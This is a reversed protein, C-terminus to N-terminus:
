TEDKEEPVTEEKSVAKEGTAMEYIFEHPVKCRVANMLMEARASERMLAYFTSFTVPVRDEKGFADALGM